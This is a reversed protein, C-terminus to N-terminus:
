GYMEKIKAAQERRRLGEEYLATSEAGLRARSKDAAGTILNIGRYMGPGVGGGIRTPDYVLNEVMRQAAAALKADFAPDGPGGTEGWAVNITHGSPSGSPNLVTPAITTTRQPVANGWNDVGGHLSTYATLTSPDGTEAAQIAEYRRVEEEAAKAYFSDAMAAMHALDPVAESVPAPAPAAAPAPAPAAVPAAVPAPPAVVPPIDPLTPIGLPMEAPAALTSTLAPFTGERITALQQAKAQAAALADQARGSAYQQEAGFQQAALANLAEQVGIEYRGARRLEDEYTRGVARQYQGSDLMGRRNFQGPIPRRTQQFQRGLDDLTMARERQVGTRQYGINALASQLDSFRQGSNSGGFQPTAANGFSPSIQGGLSGYTASATNAVTPYQDDARGTVAYNVAM